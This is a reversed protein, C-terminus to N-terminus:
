RGSLGSLQEVGGVLGGDVLGSGGYVLSRSGGGEMPGPCSSRSITAAAKRSASRFPSPRSSRVSNGCKRSAIALVDGVTGVDHRALVDGVIDDGVHFSADAGMGDNGAGEGNSSSRM